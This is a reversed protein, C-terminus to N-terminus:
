LVFFGVIVSIEEQGDHVFYQLYTSQTVVPEDISVVSNLTAIM